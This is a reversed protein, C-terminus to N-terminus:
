LKIESFFDVRLQAKIIEINKDMEELSSCDKFESYFVEGTPSFKDDKILIQYGKHLWRKRLLFVAKSKYGGKIIMTTPVLYFIARFISKILNYIRM